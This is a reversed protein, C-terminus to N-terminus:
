ASEDLGSKDNTSEFLDWAVVNLGWADKGWGALGGIASSLSKGDAKPPYKKILDEIIKVFERGNGSRKYFDLRTSQSVLDGYVAHYKKIINAKLKNWDPRKTIPKKNRWLKDEIEEKSIVAKVFWDAFGKQDKIEDVEAAHNYFIDFFKGKSGEAIVLGAFEGLFTYDEKTLEEFKLKDLYTKKYDAAVDDATKRDNLTKASKALELKQASTLKGANFDDLSNAYVTRSQKSPDAATKGVELFEDPKKYGIEQHVLKGDPGFFLYSPYGAIPYEKQITEADQYWSKVHEDDQRTKDMQVKVSIFNKNFFEGVKDSPYVDRDMMKCPGCWTAFCDVFIYKNEAKAKEKVQSWSLNQVFNIGREEQASAMLPIWMLLCLLKKMSKAILNAPDTLPRGMQAFFLGKVLFGM